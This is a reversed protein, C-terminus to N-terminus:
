CDCWSPCWRCAVVLVLFYHEHEAGV